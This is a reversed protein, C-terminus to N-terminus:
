RTLSGHKKKELVGEIRYFRVVTHSLLAEVSSQVRGLPRITLRGGWPPLPRARSLARSVIERQLFSRLAVHSKECVVSVVDGRGRGWGGEASEREEGESVRCRIM